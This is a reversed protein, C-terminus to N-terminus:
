SRQPIIFLTVLMTVHKTKKIIYQPSDETSKMLELTKTKGRVVLPGRGM